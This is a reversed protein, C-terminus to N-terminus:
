IFNEADHGGMCHEINWFITTCQTMIIKKMVIVILIIIKNQKKKQYSLHETTPENKISFTKGEREGMEFYLALLLINFRLDLPPATEM